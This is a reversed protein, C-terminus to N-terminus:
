DNAEEIEYHGGGFMEIWPGWAEGNLQERRGFFPIGRDTMLVGGGDVFRFPPSDEFMVLISLGNESILLVEGPASKDPSGHPYVKVIQGKHFSM